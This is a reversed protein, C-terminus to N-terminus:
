WYRNPRHSTTRAACSTCRPAPAPSDVEVWRWGDAGMPADAAVECGLTDVYFAIARDQDFVPLEAFQIHM